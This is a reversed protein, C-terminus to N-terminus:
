DLNDTVCMYKYQDFHFRTLTSIFFSFILKLVPIM